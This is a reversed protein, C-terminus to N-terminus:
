LANIASEFSVAISTLATIISMSAIAYVRNLTLLKEIGKDPVKEKLGSDYADFIMRELEDRDTLKVNTERAAEIASKQFYNTTIVWAKDAKKIKKATFVEQVAKNNVKKSYRKAQVVIKEQNTTLILDAGQDGAKGIVEVQYGLSHLVRGLFVEFDTGSLTDLSEIDFQELAGVYKTERDFKRFYYVLIVASIIAFVELPFTVIIFIILIIIAIIGVLLGQIGGKVSNGM